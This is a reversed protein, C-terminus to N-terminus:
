NLKDISQISINYVGNINRRIENSLPEIDFSDKDITSNIIASLEGKESVIHEINCKNPFHNHCIIALRSVLSNASLGNVNPLFKVLVKIDYENEKSIDAIILEEYWM